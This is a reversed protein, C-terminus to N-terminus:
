ARRRGRRIHRKDSDLALDAKVLDKVVRQVADKNNYLASGGRPKDLSRIEELTASQHVGSDKQGTWGKVYRM